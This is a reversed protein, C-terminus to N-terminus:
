KSMMNLYVCQILMNCKLENLCYKMNSAYIQIFFGNMNEM